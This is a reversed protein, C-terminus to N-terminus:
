RVVLCFLFDFLVALAGAVNLDDALAEAVLDRLLRAELDDGVVLEGAQWLGPRPTHM